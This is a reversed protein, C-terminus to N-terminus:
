RSHHNKGDIQSVRGITLGAAEAIDNLHLGQRRLERVLEDRRATAEDLARRAEDVSTALERLRDLEGEFAENGRTAAM